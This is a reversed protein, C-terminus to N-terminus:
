KADSLRCGEGRDLIFPPEDVYRATGIKGLFKGPGKPFTFPAKKKASLRIPLVCKLELSLLFGYHLGNVRPPQTGEQHLPAPLEGRFRQSYLVHIYPHTTPFTFPRNQARKSGVQKGATLKNKHSPARLIYTSIGCVHTYKTDVYTQHQVCAL